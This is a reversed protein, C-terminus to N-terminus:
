SDIYFLDIQEQVWLQTQSLSKACVRHDRCEGDELLCKQAGRAESGGDPSPVLYTGLDSQERMSSRFYRSVEGLKKKM